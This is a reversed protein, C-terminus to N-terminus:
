TESSAGLTLKKKIEALERETESEDMKSIQRDAFVIKENAKPFANGLEFAMRAAALVDKSTVLADKGAEIPSTLIERLRDAALEQLAYIKNGVVKDDVWWNVFEANKLWEHVKTTGAANAMATASMQSIQVTPHEKLFSHIKAKAALQSQTPNFEM